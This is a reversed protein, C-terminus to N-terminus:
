FQFYIFPIQSYSVSMLLGTIAVAILAQAYEPLACFRLRIGDIQHQPIFHLIFAATLLIIVRFDILTNAANFNTFGSLYVWAVKFSQARFFIWAFCVLHFFVTRGTLLGFKSNDLLNFFRAFIRYIVLYVGHLIGWIVFTWSAGHWLGGLLM